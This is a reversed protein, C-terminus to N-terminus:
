WTAWFFLLVVKGRYDALALTRGGVDPLSFDPAPKRPEYRQLGLTTFDDAAGSAAGALLLFAVAATGLRRM